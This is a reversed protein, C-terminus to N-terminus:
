KWFRLHNELADQGVETLDGGCNTVQLFKLKPFSPSL